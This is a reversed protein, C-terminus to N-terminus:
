RRESLRCHIVNLSHVSDPEPQEAAGRADEIQPHGCSWARTIAHAHFCWLACMCLCLADLSDPEPGDVSNVLRNARLAGLAAGSSGLILGLHGGSHDLLGKFSEFNSGMNGETDGVNQERTGAIRESPTPPVSKTDEGVKREARQGWGSLCLVCAFIMIKKGANTADQAEITM